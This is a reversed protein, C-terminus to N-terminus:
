ELLQNKAKIVAEVTQGHFHRHAPASVSLRGMQQFIVAVHGALTEAATYAAAIEEQLMDATEADRSTARYLMGCGQKAKRAERGDVETLANRIIAQANDYASAADKIKPAAIGIKERMTAVLGLLAQAAEHAPFKIEHLSDTITYAPESLGLATDLVELGAELQKGAEDLSM